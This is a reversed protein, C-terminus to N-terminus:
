KLVLFSYILTNKQLYIANSNHGQSEIEEIKNLIRRQIEIFDILM